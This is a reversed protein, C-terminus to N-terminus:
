SLGICVHEYLYEGSFVGAHPKNCSRRGFKTLLDDKFVRRKVYMSAYAIM